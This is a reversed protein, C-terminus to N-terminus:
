RGRRSVLQDWTYQVCNMEDCWQAFNKADQFNEKTDQWSSRWCQDPQTEKWYWCTKTIRIEGSEDRIFGSQDLYFREVIVPKQSQQARRYPEKVSPPPATACGATVVLVPLFCKILQKM